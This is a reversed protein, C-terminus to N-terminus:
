NHLDNFWQGMWLSPKRQSSGDSFLLLLLLTLHTPREQTRVDCWVDRKRGWNEKSFYHVCCYLIYISACTAEALWVTLTSCLVKLGCCYITPGMMQEYECIKLKVETAAGGVGMLLLSSGIEISLNLLNIIPIIWHYFKLNYHKLTVHGM